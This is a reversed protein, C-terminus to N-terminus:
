PRSPSAIDSRQRTRTKEGTPQTAARGQRTSSRLLWILAGAAILIMSLDVLGVWLDQRGLSRILHDGTVTAHVIPPALFSAALIGAATKDRAETPVLYLIAGTIIWSSFYVVGIWYVTDQAPALHHAALAGGTAAAMGFAFAPVLKELIACARPSRSRKRELWIYCGSLILGCLGLGLVTYILKLLPGGFTGYHLSILALYISGSTSDYLGQADQREGTTGKYAFERGPGLEDDLKRSIKVFAESDGWNELQIFVAEGNPEQTEADALMASLGAMPAIVGAPEPHDGFMFTQARDIDGEFLLFTIGLIYVGALGLVAGSFAIMAHFPLMWVGLVNHTDLWRVHRSREPRYTTFSDTFRAHVLVGSVILILMLLGTAGVVYGGTRGAHLNTHLNQFFRAVGYYPADIERGDTLTHETRRKEDSEPDESPRIMGWAPRDARPPLLFVDGMGHTLERSLLQDIDIPSSSPNAGQRVEPREWQFLEDHFLATVGSFSVAYLLLGFLIGSWSHVAYLRARYNANIRTAM